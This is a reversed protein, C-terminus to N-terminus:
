ESGDRQTNRIMSLHIFILQGVCSKLAMECVAVHKPEFSGDAPVEKLLLKFVYTCRFM